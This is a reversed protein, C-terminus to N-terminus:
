FYVFQYKRRLEAIESASPERGHALELEHLEEFYAGAEAPSWIVLYRALSLGRNDFSHSLGRPVLVFAGASASIEQDGVSMALEGELVYFGEEANAHVHPPAGAGGAAVTSEFMRYASRTSGADAKVVIHRQRHQALSIDRGEGAFLILARERAAM